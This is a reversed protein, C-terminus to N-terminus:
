PIFDNPALGREAGANPAQEAGSKIPALTRRLEIGIPALLRDFKAPPAGDLGGWRVEFKGILDSDSNNPANAWREAYNRNFVFRILDSFIPGLFDFRFFDTEIPNM